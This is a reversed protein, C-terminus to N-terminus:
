HRLLRQDMSDGNAQQLRLRAPLFGLGPALWIDVRTEGPQRAQRVLHWSTIRGGPLELAETGRWDFTWPEIARSAAVPLTWSDGMRPPQELSALRVALQIFVSLRDQTGDPMATASDGAGTRVQGALHDFETVRERRARDVFREPLLGQVGIRGSSTQSRSGLLFASIELMAQYSSGDQHWDLVADAGYHLGKSQGALEYVLRM